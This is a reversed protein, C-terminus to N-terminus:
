ACGCSQAHVRLPARRARPEAGAAGPLRRRSELAGPAGSYIKGYAYGADATVTLIRDGTLAAIADVQSELVQGENVEGTTITVDLVVGNQDDVATHQKFSPELRRNRGTTAMTADPDTTSIKKYKGTKRSHREAEEHDANATTVAEVHRAVLSEWSVDARILSADVHVIDAKAIRAELCARVTREFIRRFRQAGWRQRMEGVVTLDASCEILSRLARRVRADDDVILVRVKPAKRPDGPSTEQVNSGEDPQDRLAESPVATLGRSGRVFSGGGPRCM